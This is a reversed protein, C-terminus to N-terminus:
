HYFDVDIDGYYQVELDFRGNCALLDLVYNLFVVKTDNNYKGCGYINLKIKTKNINREIFSTRM